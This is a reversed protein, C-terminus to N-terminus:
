SIIDYKANKSLLFNSFILQKKVIYYTIKAFIQYFFLLTDQRKFHL